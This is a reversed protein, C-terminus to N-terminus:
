LSAAMAASTSGGGMEGPDQPAAVLHLAHVEATRCARLVDDGDLLSHTPAVGGPLDNSAEPARPTAGTGPASGAM